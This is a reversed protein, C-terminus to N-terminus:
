LGLVGCSGSCYVIGMNRRPSGLSFLSRTGERGGLPDLFFFLFGWIKKFFTKQEGTVLGGKNAMTDLMARAPLGTRLLVLLSVRQCRM